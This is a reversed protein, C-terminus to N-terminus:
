SQEPADFVEIKLRGRQWKLYHANCVGRTAAPNTCDDLFCLADPVRKPWTGSQNVIMDLANIHHRAHESATLVELNEIRNDHRDGNIHHVHADLPVDVGADYLVKRHVAVYGDSRALPHSPIWIDIYGVANVREKVGRSKRNKPYTM